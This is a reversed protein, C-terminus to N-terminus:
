WDLEDIAAEIQSALDQEFALIEGEGDQKNPRSSAPNGSQPAFDVVALDPSTAECDHPLPEEARSSRWQEERELSILRPTLEPLMAREDATASAGNLKRGKNGMESGPSRSAAPGSGTVSYPGGAGSSLEQGSASAQLPQERNWWQSIDSLLSSRSAHGGAAEIAVSPSPAPVHFKLPHRPVYGKNPYEGMLLLPAPAVCEVRFNCIPSKCRHHVNWPAGPLDGGSTDDQSDQNIPPPPTGSMELMRRVASCWELERCHGCQQFYSQVIRLWFTGLRGISAAEPECCFPVSRCYSTAVVFLDRQVDEETRETFDRLWLRPFPRSVQLRRRLDLLTFDLVLCGIWYTQLQSCTQVSPFYYVTEFTRDLCLQAFEQMDRVDVIQYLDAGSAVHRGTLWRGMEERLSCIDRCVASFDAPISDPADLADFREILGPVQLALDYLAVYPDEKAAEKTVELWKREAFFVSKRKVLGMCLSSHRINHFLMRGFPSNTTEPGTAQIYQQAGGVHSIWGKGGQNGRAIADFLECLALVTIAALIHDQRMQKTRPKALENALMPLARVYRARSEHLCREDEYLSGLEALCLTDISVQLLPSALDVYPLNAIYAFHSMMTKDHRKPLHLDLFISLLQTRHVHRKSIDIPSQCRAADYFQHRWQYRKTVAGADGPPPREHVLESGAKRAVHRTQDVFHLDREVPPRYGPCQAGYEACKRCHPKDEDCRVKRQRTRGTLRRVM